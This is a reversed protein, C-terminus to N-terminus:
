FQGTPSYYSRRSLQWRDSKVPGLLHSLLTLRVPCRQSLDRPLATTNVSPTRRRNRAPFCLVKLRAARRCYDYACLFRSRLRAPSSFISQVLGSSPGHGIPKTQHIPSTAPALRVSINFGIGVPRHHPREAPGCLSHQMRPQRWSTSFETLCFSERSEAAELEQHSREPTPCSPDHM